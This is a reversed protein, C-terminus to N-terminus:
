QALVRALEIYELDLSKKTTAVEDLPTMRVDHKHMGVLVGHVDNGLADVAAVGLRTALVRDFATPSGGRVVHGLIIVRVIFGLDQEGVFDALGQADTRCGEAVVVISHTKGRLYAARLREAVEAPELEWEPIQIIEAGGAIGSLLGLHGHNRGMTQVIHARHHSAGTTRLRDIAEITINVATDAGISPESGHLDNDITSAIGIVPFGMESLAASGQQTGNGGIVVAADVGRRALNHLATQRGELTRFEDARASGLVTGGLQMIGGVDRARLPEMRDQMLGEFGRRVGLVEWGRDVASRTAARIAANMGPADGGSTIVVIREM